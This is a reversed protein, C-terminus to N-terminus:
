SLRAQKHLPPPPPLSQTIYSQKANLLHETSKRLHEIAEDISKETLFRNSARTLLPTVQKIHSEAHSILTGFFARNM